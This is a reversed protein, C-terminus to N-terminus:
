VASSVSYFGEVTNTHVDGACMNTPRTTSARMARSISRGAHLLPRRRRDDHRNRARCNAKVIPVIDAASTGDIHFSRVEGGREVLSLVANKHGHGRRKMSGEKRGIFTEDLEVMDGVGGMPSLEGVRMAERIRHGM